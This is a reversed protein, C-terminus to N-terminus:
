KGHSNETPKAAPAGALYMTGLTQPHYLHRPAAAWNSSEQGISAFRGFNVGWFRPVAWPSATEEGGPAFSALPISLEVIWEDAQRNVAVRAGSAWPVSRGEPGAAAIGREAVLIGSPKIM